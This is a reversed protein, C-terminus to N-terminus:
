REEWDVETAKLPHSFLPNDPSLKPLAGLRFLLWETVHQDSTGEPLYLNFSVHVRM